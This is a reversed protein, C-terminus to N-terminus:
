NPDEAMMAYLLHLMRETRPTGSFLLACAAAQVGAEPVPDGKPMLFEIKGDRRFVVAADGEELDLASDKEEGM